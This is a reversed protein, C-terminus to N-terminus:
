GRERRGFRERKRERRRVPVRLREACPSSCRDVLPRARCAPAIRRTTWMDNPAWEKLKELKELTPLGPPKPLFQCVLDMEYMISLGPLLGAGIGDLRFYIVLEWTSVFHIEVDIAAPSRPHPKIRSLGAIPLLCRTM